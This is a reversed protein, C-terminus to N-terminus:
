LMLRPLVLSIWPFAILLVMVVVECALFWFCGRFITNLPIRDGVVSKVVYVSLGVPPTLLGIGIYKVVLVGLWVLDMELAQFMPLFVPITILMIGMPDLFMGLILYVVSMAIVLTLPELAWVGVLDTLYAGIGALALFRTFMIAGMGIFFIQATAAMSEKLSEYLGRWSMRGQVTAVVLAIMAGGAGAETPTFIGGYLGGIVGLMLLILPWVKATAPGRKARLEEPSEDIPPALSPNLKCRILIMATYFAATLLGPLIGAILLQAVSVQAFVGFIVFLISPPILADLTGASAVVGAALGKDYRFRLMEPIAIRAMVAAAAISSGSAAGFGAAALNTAIALGGPLRGFWLRAAEFLDRAIGSHNVIAGMLLFMPMATLEWNAAFQYPVTRLLTLAIDFGSLYTVGALAVIGLAAGIPM